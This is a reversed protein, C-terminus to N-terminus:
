GPLSRDCLLKVLGDRMHLNLSSIVNVGKFAVHRFCHGEKLM